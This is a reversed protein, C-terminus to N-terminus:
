RVNLMEEEILSRAAACRDDPAPAPLQILQRARAENAKAPVEAAKIRGLYASRDVESQVKLADISATQEAIIVDRAELAKGRENAATVALDARGKEAVIQAKANNLRHTQIGAFTSAFLALAGMGVLPLKSIPFM